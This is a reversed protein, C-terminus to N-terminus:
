PSRRRENAQSIAHARTRAHTTRVVQHAGARRGLGNLTPRSSLKGTKKGSQFQTELSESEDELFVYEYLMTALLAGFCPGFQEAGGFTLARTRSM